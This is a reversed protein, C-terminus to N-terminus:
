LVDRDKEDFYSKEQFLMILSRILQVMPLIMPLKKATLVVCEM